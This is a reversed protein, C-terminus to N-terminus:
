AVREGDASDDTVDEFEIDAVVERLRAVLDRHRDMERLVVYRRGEAAATMRDFLEIADVNEAIVEALVTESDYSAVTLLKRAKKVAAPRRERLDWSLLMREKPDQVVPELLETVVDVWLADTFKAKSRRLRLIEWTLDAVDRVWIEEVVDRPAVSSRMRDFLEDFADPSEGFLLAPPGLIELLEPDIAAVDPRHRSVPLGISINRASM